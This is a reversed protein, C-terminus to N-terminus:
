NRRRNEHRLQAISLMVQYPDPTHYPDRFALLVEISLARQKPNTLVKAFYATVIRRTTEAPVALQGAIAYLESTSAGKMIARALDFSVQDKSGRALVDAAEKGNKCQAVLELNKIADRPSGESNSAVVELIDTINGLDEEQAIWDLLSYLDKYKCESLSITTCRSQIARIIKKPETTCIFWTLHEPSEEIIKLLCNWAATSLQHAEDLIVSLHGGGLPPYRVQDLLERANDIGTHRAANIEITKSSKRTAAGIRALTTKGTGPPGNLLFASTGAKLARKFAKVVSKNGVLDDFDTPRYKTNWNM